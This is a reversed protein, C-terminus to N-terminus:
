KSDTFVDKYLLGILEELKEVVNTEFRLRKYKRDMELTIRAVLTKNHIIKGATYEDATIKFTYNKPVAKVPDGKLVYDRAEKDNCEFGAENAIRKLEEIWDSGYRAPMEVTEYHGM